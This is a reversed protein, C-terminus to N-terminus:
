LLLQRELSVKSDFVCESECAGGEPYPFYHVQSKPATQKLAKVSPTQTFLLWLVSVVGSFHVGDWFWLAGARPLM